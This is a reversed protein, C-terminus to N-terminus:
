RMVKATNIRYGGGLAMEEFPAVADIVYESCDKGDILKSGNFLSDGLFDKIKGFVERTVRWEFRYSLRRGLDDTEATDPTSRYAVIELRCGDPREVYTKSVRFRNIARNYLREARGERRFM